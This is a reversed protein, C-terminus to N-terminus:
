GSRRPGPCCAAWRNREQDLRGRAARRGPERGGRAARPTREHEPAGSVRSRHRRRGARARRGRAGPGRRRDPARRAARVSGARRRIRRCPGRRRDTPSRHLTGRRCRVPGTRHRAHGPRLRRSHAQEDRCEKSELPNPRATGPSSGRSRRVTFNVLSDALLAELGFHSRPAVTALSAASPSTASDRDPRADARWRGRTPRRPPRRARRNQASVRSSRSMRWWSGASRWAAISRTPRSGARVTSAM